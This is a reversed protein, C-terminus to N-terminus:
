LSPFIQAFQKSMATVTQLEHPASSICSALTHPELRRPGASVLPLDAAGRLAMFSGVLSDETEM